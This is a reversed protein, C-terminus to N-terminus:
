PYRNMLEDRMDDDTWPWDLAEQPTDFVVTCDISNNEADMLALFADVDVGAAEFDVRAIQARVLYYENNDIEALECCALYNNTILRDPPTSRVYGNM